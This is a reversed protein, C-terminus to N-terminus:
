LLGVDRVKKLADRLRAAEEFRLAKAATRMEKELRAVEAQPDTPGSLYGSRELFTLLDSQDQDAATYRESQRHKGVRHDIDRDDGKREREIPRLARTAATPTVGHAENHAQQVARRRATEDILARMSRTVRDAYLIAEGRPHRAARGATQILSRANRLFGERDADLIAVLSVEPLDLGERLLNIGVLVDYVGARLEHLLEMRELTDVDSHLYRVKVGCDAYYETLDEAMRKTLTTVLVREQRAARVRIEELLDDVQGGVSRVTVVPDLLGTPRVVQEVVVGQTIEMEWDGPTASVFISQGRRADWEAFMLPRNDLASPLRFGHEVLTSKRSRDGKYMGHIQGITAHSEDVVFLGDPPFYDLLTPPPEGDKRGSFWRSYNEIGPCRGATEIMELDHSCRQELRQAELLHDGARLEALRQRLEGRIAGLAGRMLGAPMVYHSGPYIAVRDLNDLVQGTLPDVSRIAEVEDGFFEIRLAREDEHAPFVEVSDGRVRFTGRHFDLDNREYQADILRGLFDRRYVTEGVEVQVLMSAWHEASGIGYICSVSAVVVVDRRTLLSRTARHRMRDIEDNISSDKEIFTDSAPVYAEPQYYDYYSVFYEVAMDPLLGKLEGYLQAALTKNHALILAPRESQVILQAVTFTKGSGTVGLLVQDRAGAALGALLEAIAKPQDGAPEFPSDIRWTM